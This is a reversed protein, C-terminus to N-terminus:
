DDLDKSLDLNVAYGKEAVKKLWEKAKKNDKEVGHGRSYLVGLAYQAHTFDKDAAKKYLEAAKAYDKEVGKGSYYFAALRDFAIVNDQKVAKAYLEAAVTYNQSCSTGDRYMDGLYVMSEAIGRNAAKQFLSFAKQNDQETEGSLYYLKGLANQAEPINQEAAVTLYKMAKKANKRLPGKGEYYLMGLCYCADADALTKPKTLYSTAQQYDQKVGRGYYYLIGLNALVYDDKHSAKNLTEAAKKYLYEPTNKDKSLRQLSNDVVGNSMEHAASLYMEAAKKYNKSAVYQNASNIKSDVSKMDITKKLSETDKAIFSRSPQSSRSSDKVNSNQLKGGVKVTQGEKVNITTSYALYGYKRIEVTHEGELINRIANPTQGYPKGDITIDALAPTTTVMINGLIPTPVPLVVTQRGDEASFSKTISEDRHHILKTVLKYDGSALRGSWSGVGKKEGNIWIEANNAVTFTVECFDASLSPNVITTKSDNVTVMEEWPKYMAKLIKIRHQGSSINNTRMPATGLLKNDMYVKAGVMDGEAQIDIWGFAPKLNVTVITKNDPDDITVKGVEPHYDGAEVSYDYSGFPVYKQALGNTVELLENDLMVIADKPEVQFVVFQNTVLEEITTKVSGTALKMEYTRAAEIACPFYYDRFVGLQPHKITIKKSKQPIYVWVEGNEQKVKTIGLAGGEFTFGTQTTVVKILATKEGNQDKVETGNTNATLDNPLLKFSTVNINQANVSFSLSLLLAIIFHCKNM